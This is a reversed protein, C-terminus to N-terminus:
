QKCSEKREVLLTHVESNGLNKAFYTVPDRWVVDGARNHNESTKGEPPTSAMNADTFFYVLVRM